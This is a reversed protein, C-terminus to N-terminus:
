TQRYALPIEPPMLLRQGEALVIQRTESYLFPGTPQIAWQACNDASLNSFKNDPPRRAPSMAQREWFNLGAPNPRHPLILADDPDALRPARTVIPPIM